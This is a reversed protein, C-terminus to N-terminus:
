AKARLQRWKTVAEPERPYIPQLSAPESPERLMSLRLCCAASLLPTRVPVGARLLVDRMAPPCFGDALALLPWAGAERLADLVAPLESATRSRPACAGDLEVLEAHEAREASAPRRRMVASCWASEGKSALVVLVCAPDPLTQGAEGEADLAADAAVLASPVGVLRAGTAEALMRASTLATRVATFGGPGISVAVHQLQRPLVGARGCLRALAQVPDDHEAGVAETRLSAGDLSGGLLPALAVESGRAPNSVEIAVAYASMRPVLM